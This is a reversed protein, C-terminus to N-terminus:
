NDSPQEARQIVLIEVPGREAKFDLGLDQHFVAFISPGINDVPGRNAPQMALMEGSSWEISIDFNRTLGTKDIVTRGLLRSLRPTLSGIPASVATLGDSGLEFAGCLHMKDVAFPNAPDFPTCAGEKSPTLRPGLKGDERALVLALVPLQRIERQFALQFRDVLLAQLMLLVDERTQQAGAKASIDYHVSDLWGPGGSVQFPQVSYAKAIMDKLTMNVIELRGGPPMISSTVGADRASLKITAVEFVRVAGSQAQVFPSWGALLCGGSLLFRALHTLM